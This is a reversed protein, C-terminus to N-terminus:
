VNISHELHAFPIFTEKRLPQAKATAADAFKGAIRISRNQFFVVAIPIAADMSTPIMDEKVMMKNDGLINLLYPMVPCDGMENSLGPITEMGNLKKVKIMTEKNVCFFL